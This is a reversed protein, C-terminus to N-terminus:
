CGVRLVGRPHTGPGCDSGGRRTGPLSQNSCTSLVLTMSGHTREELYVALNESSAASRDRRSYVGPEGELASGPQPSVPRELGM